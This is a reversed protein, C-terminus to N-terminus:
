DSYITSCVFLCVFMNQKKLSSFYVGLVKFQMGLVLFLLCPRKRAQETPGDKSQSLIESVGRENQRAYRFIASPTYPVLSLCHTVLMKTGFGKERGKRLRAVMSVEPCVMAVLAM